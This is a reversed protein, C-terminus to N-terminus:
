CINRSCWFVFLISNGTSFLSIFILDSNLKWSSHPFALYHFTDLICLISNVLNWLRFFLDPRIPEGLKKQLFRALYILGNDKFSLDSIQVSYQVCADLINHKKRQLYNWFIDWGWLSFSTGEWCAKSLVAWLAEMSGQLLLTICLTLLSWLCFVCIM